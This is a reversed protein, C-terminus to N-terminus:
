EPPAKLSKVSRSRSCAPCRSTAAAAIIRRAASSSTALTSPPRQEICSRLRCSRPAFAVAARLPFSCAPTFLQVSSEILFERLRWSPSNPLDSLPCRVASLPCRVACLRFQRTFRFRCRVRVRVHVIETRPRNKATAYTGPVRVSGLQQTRVM